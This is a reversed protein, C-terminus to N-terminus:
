KKFHERAKDYEEITIEKTLCNYSTYIQAKMDAYERASMGAPKDSLFDLAIGLCGDCEDFIKAFEEGYKDVVAERSVKPAQIVHFMNGGYMLELAKVANESNIVLVLRYLGRDRGWKVLNHFRVLFDARYACLLEEAQDIVIITPQPRLFRPLRGKLSKYLFLRVRQENWRQSLLDALYSFPYEKQGKPIQYKLWDTLTPFLQSGTLFLGRPPFVYLYWWPFMDNLIANSLFVTKGSRHPGVLAVSKIADRLNLKHIPQTNTGVTMYGRSLVPYDIRSLNDACTTLLSNFCKSTARQPYKVVGIVAGLGFAGIGL